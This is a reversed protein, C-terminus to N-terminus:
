DYADRNLPNNLFKNQLFQSDCLWLQRKRMPVSGDLQLFGHGVHIQSVTYETLLVTKGQSKVHFALMNLLRVSKTFVLVKNKPDKRWSNLLKQLVKMRSLLMSHRAFVSHWTANIVHINLLKGGM